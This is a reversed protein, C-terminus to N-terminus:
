YTKPLEEVREKTINEILMVFQDDHERFLHMGAIEFSSLCETVKQLVKDGEKHGFTDNILHFEDLDIFVLAFETNDNLLTNLKNACSIRNMLGTLQDYYALYETRMENLVQRTVDRTVIYVGVIEGNVIIPITRLSIYLEIDKKIFISRQFM